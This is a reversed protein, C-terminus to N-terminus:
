SQGSMLRSLSATLGSLNSSFGGGAAGNDVFSLMGRRGGRAASRARTAKDAEAKAADAEVMGRQKEQEAALAAQQDRAIKQEDLLAANTTALARQQEERAARATTGESFGLASSVNGAVRKVGESM